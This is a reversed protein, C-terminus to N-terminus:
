EGGETKFIKGINLGLTFYYSIENKSIKWGHNEAEILHKATLKRVERYASDRDYVAFKDDLESFLRRLKNEDLRLGSLKKRFPTSGKKGAQVGMFLNTVVGELFAARKEPMDFAYKFEKFFKDIEEGEESMRTELREDEIENMTDGRCIGLENIFTLLFLSKLALIKESWVYKKDKNAKVHMNRMERMFADIILTENIARDALINGVVDFFYKDYVGTEKSAPFFARIMGSMNTGYLKKGGWNGKVFDNSWKSGVLIKLCEEKFISKQNVKDFTDYLKNLWSPSVDEVYKVIDFFKQKPKCFVFILTLIDEKERVDESIDGEERLLGEKYEKGKYSKIDEVVEKEVDKFIFQPIVYYRYGYFPYSLYTDLFEKGAVLSIACDECIPLRKWSDERQFYPAFGIKDFTYVPFPSAFGYVEEEKGCQSCIGNSKSEVDHKIFFKKIAEKKFIENFIDFENLYKEKENESIKITIISNAKEGNALSEYRESIQKFLEDKKEEFLNALSDVLNGKDKRYPECYKGFWLNWRKKIKEIPTIKAIKATLTVDYQGHDFTRYLSREAKSEDYDEIHVKDFSLNNNEKRFVVCIVKKVNSLKSKEVLITEDSLSEDNIVFEGLNKVANLM